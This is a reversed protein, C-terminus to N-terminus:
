PSFNPHELGIANSAAAFVPKIDGVYFCEEVAIAAGGNLLWIVLDDHLNKTM